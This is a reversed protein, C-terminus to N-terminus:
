GSEENSLWNEESALCKCFMKVEAEKGKLKFTHPYIHNKLNAASPELWQMLDYLETIEYFM